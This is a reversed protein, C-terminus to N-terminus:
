KKKTVIEAPWPSGATKTITKIVGFDTLYNREVPALAQEKTFPSMWEFGAYYLGISDVNRDQAWKKLETSTKCLSVLVPLNETFQSSNAWRIFDAEKNNQIYDDIWILEIQSVNPLNLAKVGSKVQELTNAFLTAEEVPRLFKQSTNKYYEELKQNLQVQLEISQPYTLQHVEKLKAQDLFRVSVNRFCQATTSRNMWRPSEPLFFQEIGNTRYTSLEATPSTYSPGSSCSCILLLLLSCYVLKM